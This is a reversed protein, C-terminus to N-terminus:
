LPDQLHTHQHLLTMSMTAGATQTHTSRIAQAGMEGSRGVLGLMGVRVKAGGGQELDYCARSAGTRGKVCVGKRVGEWQCMCGITCREVSVYVRDCVKGSVRENVREGPLALHPKFIVAVLKCM